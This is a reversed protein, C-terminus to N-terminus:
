RVLTALSAAITSGCQSLGLRQLGCLAVLSELFADTIDWYSLDLNQLATLTRAM